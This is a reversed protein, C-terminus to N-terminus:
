RTMKALIEQTLREQTAEDFGLKEAQCVEVVHMGVIRHFEAVPISGLDYCGAAALKRVLRETVRIKVREAPDAVRSTMVGSIPGSTSGSMSGGAGPRLTQAFSVSTSDDDNSSPIRGPAPSQTAAKPPPPPVPASPAKALPVPAVALRHFTTVPQLDLVEPPQVSIMRFGNKLKVDTASEPQGGAHAPEGQAVLKQLIQRYQQVDRLQVPSPLWTAGRRLVVQNHALVLFEDITPDRFLEELVGLGLSEALIEEIFGYRDAKAWGPTEIELFQELVRKAEARVLSMPKNHTRAFDVREALRATARQYLETLQAAARNSRTPMMPTVAM